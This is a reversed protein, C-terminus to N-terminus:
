HGVAGSKEEGAGRENLVGDSLLNGGFFQTACFHVRLDAAGHIEAFRIVFGADIAEAGEDIFYAMVSVAWEIVLFRFVREIRWFFDVANECISRALLVVHAVDDRADSRKAAPTSRCPTCSQVSSSPM